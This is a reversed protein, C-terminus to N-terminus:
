SPMPKALNSASLPPMHRCRKSRSFGWVASLAGSCTGRKYNSFDHGTRVRLQAFIERLPGDDDGGAVPAQDRLQIHDVTNRYAVIRSPMEATSLVADVLGTAM